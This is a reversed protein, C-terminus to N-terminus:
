IKRVVGSLVGVLFCLMGKLYEQMQRYGSAVLFRDMAIAMESRAHMYTQAFEPAYEVIRDDSLGWSRLQRVDYANIPLTAALEEDTM